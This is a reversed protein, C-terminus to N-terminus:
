VGRVQRLCKIDLSGYREMSVRLVNTMARLAGPGEAVKLCYASEEVGSVGWASAVALIDAKNLSKGDNGNGPRYPSIVTRFESMRSLLQTYAGKDRGTGTSLRRYIEGNGLYVIGFCGQDVLRRLMNIIPIGMKKMMDALHQGEDVFLLGRRGRTAEIIARSMSFESREDFRGAGLIARAILLLVSKISICSEDLEIEWVPCFFGESKRVRAICENKAETKGLGPAACFDFWEGLSRATEAAEILARTVTTEVKVPCRLRYDPGAQDFEAFRAEITEAIKEAHTKDGVVRSYKPFSDPSKLWIKLRSVENEGRAFDQLTRGSALEDIVRDSIAKWRGLDFPAHCTGQHNPKDLVQENEHLM